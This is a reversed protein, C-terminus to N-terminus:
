GTGGLGLYEGWCGIRLCGRGAKGRWRWRDLKPGQWWPMASGWTASPPVAELISTAAFIDFLSDRVASLPHDKLKPTPRPALLEEGYFRIKNRFMWVTFKPCPSLTLAYLIYIFQNNVSSWSSMKLLQNMSPKVVSTCSSLIMQPLSSSSWCQDFCTAMIRNINFIATGYQSLEQYIERGTNFLIVHVMTVSLGARIKM